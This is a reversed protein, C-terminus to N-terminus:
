MVGTVSLSPCHSVGGTSMPGDQCGISRWTSLGGGRWPMSLDIFSGSMSRSPLQIPVRRQYCKYWAIFWNNVIVDCGKVGAGSKYKNTTVPIGLGVGGNQM